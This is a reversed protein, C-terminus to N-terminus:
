VMQLIMKLINLLFGPDLIHHNIEIRQLGTFNKDLIVDEQKRHPPFHFNHAISYENSMETTDKMSSAKQVKRNTVHERIRTINKPELKSDSKLPLSQYSM